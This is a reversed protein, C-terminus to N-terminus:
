AAELATIRATLSTILAQQEQICKVLIPVFVSYKVSKTTTNLSNGDADLDPTEDVISPFVAELEQAVVGIQKHNPENKLNYNRIKVQMLDALKPSADVINEKLKIDSLAGYSNNANVINGNGYIIINAVSNTSSTGYFHGWTTGAATVSDSRFGYGTFATPTRVTVKASNLSSTVGIAVDGDSTIRMRETTNATFFVIPEANVTKILMAAASTSYGFLGGYGGNKNAGFYVDSSVSNIQVPVNADTLSGAGVALKCLPANTGIGVNGSSDIRMRETYGGTKFTLFGSALNNVIDYSNAAGAYGVYGVQGSTDYFSIYNYGTTTVDGTSESRISGLALSGKIHLKTAPSSTGIGVNQSADIYVANTGATSIGVASTTPYYLGTSTGATGGQVAPVTASNDTGNLILTM